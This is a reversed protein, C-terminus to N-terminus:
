ICSCFRKGQEDSSYSNYRSSSSASRKSEGGSVHRIRSVERRAERRRSMNLNVGSFDNIEVVGGQPNPRDGPRHREEQQIRESPVDAEVVQCKDSRSHPDYSSPQKPKTKQLERDYNPPVESSLRGEVQMQTRMEQSTLEELVQM